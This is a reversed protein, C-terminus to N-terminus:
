RNQFMRRSSIECTSKETHNSWPKESTADDYTAEVSPVDQSSETTTPLLELEDKVDDPQTNGIVSGKCVLKSNTVEQFTNLKNKHFFCRQM